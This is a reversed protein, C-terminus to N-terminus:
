ANRGDPKVKGRKVPTQEAMPSPQRLRQKKQAGSERTPPAAPQEAAPPTTNPTNM